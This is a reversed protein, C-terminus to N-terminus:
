HLRVVSASGVGALNYCNPPLLLASRLAVLLLAVLLLAALGLVASAWGCGFALANLM